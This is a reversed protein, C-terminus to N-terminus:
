VYMPRSVHIIDGATLKGYHSADTYSLWKNVGHNETGWAAAVGSHPGDYGVLNVLTTLLDGTLRSKVLQLLPYRALCGEDPLHEAVQEIESVGRAQRRGVRSIRLNVLQDPLPEQEILTKHYSAVHMSQQVGLSLEKMAYMEVPTVHWALYDATASGALKRGFKLRKSDHLRLQPLPQTIKYVEVTNAPTRYPLDNVAVRGGLVNSCLQKNLGTMRCVSPVLLEVIGEHRSRNRLTWAAQVMTSLGDMANLRTENVWNGSIISGIARATYGFDGYDSSAVRLFESAFPGASQKSPNMKIPSASLMVLIDAADALGACSLFVDDGVHVSAVQSSHPVYLRLYAANLVTNIYSTARHGSMLTGQVHGIKVHGSLITGRYFSEVLTKRRESDYNCYRATEDIVVAQSDLSHQANFNSYDLMLNVGGRSKLKKVRRAMGYHGGAGPDMVVRKNRWAREVPGLFHCFNVYTATDGAFIARSKGHELKQSGSYYSSGSWTCCLNDKVEELYARRHTQGEWPADIAHQQEFSEFGRSHAGNVAWLWRKTWFASVEEFEAGRPLEELLIERVAARLADQDPHIVEEAVAKPDVRWAAEAALDV